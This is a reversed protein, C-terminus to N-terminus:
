QLIGEKYLAIILEEKDSNLEFMKEKIEEQRLPRAEGFKSDVRHLADYVDALAVIRACDLILLKTVESYKGLKHPLHKPYGNEQFRHHQVIIDATFDFSGRLRRWGFTVHRQVHHMDADTWGTTKGLVESSVEAKGVDHLTGALLLPKQPLCVRRGIEAALLGVRLCHAYHFRTISNNDKLPLLFTMVAQEDAQTVELSVCRDHFLEGLMILNTDQPIM